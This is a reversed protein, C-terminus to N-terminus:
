IYEFLVEFKIVDKKIFNWTRAHGRLFIATKM